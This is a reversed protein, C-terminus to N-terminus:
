GKGRADGRRGIPQQPMLNKFSYSFRKNIKSVSLAIFLNTTESHVKRYSSVPLRTFFQRRLPKKANICNERSRKVENPLATKMKRVNRGSLPSVKSLEQSQWPTMRRVGLVAGTAM